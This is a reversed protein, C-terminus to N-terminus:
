EQKRWTLKKLKRRVIQQFWKTTDLNFVVVKRVLNLKNMKEM